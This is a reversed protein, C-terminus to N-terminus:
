DGVIKKLYYESNKFVVKHSYTKEFFCKSNEQGVKLKESDDLWSKICLFVSEEDYAKFTSGIKESELLTALEGQITTCIVLGNAMYEYIKNPMSFSDSGVYPALGIQCNSSIVKIGASDVWGPLYVNSLGKLESTLEDKKDGDGAVVFGVDPLRKAVAALSEFEFYRGLTGFFCVNLKYKNFDFKIENKVKELEEPKIEIEPYGLPFVYDKDSFERGAFSLGYDVQRKTVGMIGDVSKCFNTMKAFASNLLLKGAWRLSQPLINVLEDPWEDRIDAIIPIKWKKALKLCASANEITPIPSIILDPKEQEVALDYFDKAFKKNHIIRDLSVNKTYGKSKILWLKYGNIDLCETKSSFHKKPMHSFSSSWWTVDHGQKALYSCFNGYRHPRVGEELPLPEGIEVFWVKMNSQGKLM